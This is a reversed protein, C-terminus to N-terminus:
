ARAYYQTKSTQGLTANKKFLKVVDVNHLIQGVLASSVGSLANTTNQFWLWGFIAGRILKLSM